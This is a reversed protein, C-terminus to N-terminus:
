SDGGSEEAHLLREHEAREAASREFLGEVDSRAPGDKEARAADHREAAEIVGDREEEAKLRGAKERGATKALRVLATVVTAILVVGIAVKAIADWPLAGV